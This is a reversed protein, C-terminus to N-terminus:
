PFVLLVGHTFMILLWVKSLYLDARKKMFPGIQNKGLM